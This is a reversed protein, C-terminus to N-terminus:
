KKPNTVGIIVSFDGGVDLMNKEPCYMRSVTGDLYLANKCGQSKFYNAFEFMNIGYNAYAFVLRGDPLVGVGNRSTINKSNPKFAPNISGDIVLLPGSQLAYKINKSYIFSETKVIKAYGSNTIFLVGNPKLYFNGYGNSRNLNKIIKFDSILLGLPNYDKMYIGGNMAFILNQNRGDLYEKLKKISRFVVGKDDRLFFSINQTKPNVVFYNIQNKIFANLILPICFVFIMLFTKALINKKM